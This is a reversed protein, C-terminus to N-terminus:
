ERVDRLATLSRCSKAYARLVYSYVHISLPVKRFASVHVLAGFWQM